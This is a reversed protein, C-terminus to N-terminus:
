FFDLWQAGGYLFYARILAVVVVFVILEVVVELCTLLSM